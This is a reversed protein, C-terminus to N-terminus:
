KKKKILTDRIEVIKGFFEYGFEDEGQCIKDKNVEYIGNISDLEVVFWRQDGPVQYEIMAGQVLQGRQSEDIHGHGRVDAGVEYHANAGGRIVQWIGEPQEGITGYNFHHSRFNGIISKGKENNKM